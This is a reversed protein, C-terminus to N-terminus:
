HNQQHQKLVSQGPKGRIVEEIPVGQGHLPHVGIAIEGIYHVSKSILM